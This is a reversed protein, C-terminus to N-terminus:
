RGTFRAARKEMFARPGERADESAMVLRKAENEIAYGADLALGSTARVTRKVAQVALPGNAAIRQALALARPLVEAAPVVHNILGLRQAQAADVPEGTLLFEMALAHPIQRTLRVLSGAFPIVGRRVEPLGFQAHEAAIRIDTGLLMEMGGALCAGNIAAILPKDLPFDRLSSAAMVFPEHLVRFDWADAAHRDGSILPLMTALDGGACFAKDGAGTLIGVRLEPDAAFDRLADAFRCVLEPTLANRAAPRNLTFTAIAGSKEYLLPLVAETM